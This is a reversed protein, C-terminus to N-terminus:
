CLNGLTRLAISTQRMQNYIVKSPDEFLGKLAKINANDLGNV